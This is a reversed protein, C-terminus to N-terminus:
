SSGRGKFASAVASPVGTNVACRAGGRVCLLAGEGVVSFRFLPIRAISTLRDLKFIAAHLNTKGALKQRPDM